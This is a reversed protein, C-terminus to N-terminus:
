TGGSRSRSKVNTVYALLNHYIRRAATSWGCHVDAAECTPFQDLLQPTPTRVAKERFADCRARTEDRLYAEPPNPYSPREGRLYRGVDRRYERYLTTPEYEPHGQFFVLLSGANKVFLDAGTLSGESVISYGREQLCRLPLDNWRSHPVHLPEHVGETLFHRLVRHQFVGFRKDPLRQREIRDLALTAGHAALCSWVSACTNLRAWGLLEVFAGWYPEAPLTPAVPETGTVILLDPPARRLAELSWYRPLMSQRTLSSRPVQPISTFRLRLPSEPSAAALLATFQTETAELAPDPMNNVLAVVLDGSGPAPVEHPLDVRVTM